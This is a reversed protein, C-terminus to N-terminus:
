DDNYYQKLMEWWMAVNQPKQAWRLKSEDGQYREGNKGHNLCWGSVTRGVVLM